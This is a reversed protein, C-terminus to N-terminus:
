VVHQKNPACLSVTIKEYGVVSTNGDFLKTVGDLHSRKVRIATSLVAAYHNCRDIVIYQSCLPQSVILKSKEFSCSSGKVITEPLRLFRSRVRGTGTRNTGGRQALNCQQINHLQISLSTTKFHRSYTLFM